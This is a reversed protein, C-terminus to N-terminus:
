PFYEALKKETEELAAVAAQYEEWLDDPVQKTPKGNMNKNAHYYSAKYEEDWEEFVLVMEM